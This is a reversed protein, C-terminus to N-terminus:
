MQLGKFVAQLNSVVPRVEEFLYYIIIIIIIIFLYIFVFCFM